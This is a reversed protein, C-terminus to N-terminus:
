DQEKENSSEGQRTLPPSGYDYPYSNSSFVGMFCVYSAVASEGFGNGRSFSSALCLPHFLSLLVGILWGSMLRIM